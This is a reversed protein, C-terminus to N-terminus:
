NLTLNLTITNNANVLVMILLVLPVLIFSLKFLSDKKIENKKM